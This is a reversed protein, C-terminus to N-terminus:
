KAIRDSIDLLKRIAEETGVEETRLQECIKEVQKLSMEVQKVEAVEKQAEEAKKGTEEKA